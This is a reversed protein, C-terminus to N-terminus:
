EVRWSQVSKVIDLACIVVLIVDIVPHICVTHKRLWAYGIIEYMVIAALIVNFIIIGRYLKFFKM